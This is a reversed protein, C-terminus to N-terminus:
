CSVNIELGPSRFRRLFVATTV